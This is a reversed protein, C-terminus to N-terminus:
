FVVLKTLKLGCTKQFNRGEEPPYPLKGVQLAKELAPNEQTTFPELQQPLTMVYQGIQLLSVHFLCVFLCVILFVFCVLLSCQQMEVLIESHSRLLLFTGDSDMLIELNQDFTILLDSISVINEVQFPLSVLMIRVKTIYELPSLSFTPLDASLM